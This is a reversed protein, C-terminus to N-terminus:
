QLLGLVTSASQNAQSLMAQAAQSLINDKVYNMMEKAMDSDRITSEAAITNEHETTLTDITENLRVQYAGMRTTENLAYELATDLKDIAELAKERPDVAVDALGMAKPRMDNIYIHLNQNAKPGTHIIIPSDIEPTTIETIDEYITKTVIELIETYTDYQTTKKENTIGLTETKTITETTIEYITETIEGLSLESDDAIGGSLINETSLLKVSGGQVGSNISSATVLGNYYSYITINGCKTSYQDFGHGIGAGQQSSSANVQVNSYITINGCENFTSSCGIGAAAAAIASIKAGSYVVIDGCTSKALTKANGSGIAAGATYGTHGPLTCM